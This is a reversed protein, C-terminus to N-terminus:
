SSTVKRAIALLSTGIPLQWRWRVAAAERKLISRLLPNVLPVVKLERGAKAAAKEQSIDAQGGHLRRGLWVLPFLLMMFQTVFEVEFGNRHLLTKLGSVAYRRRHCASVDFYSWLTMHAPVTLILAGGPKLIRHLGAVIEEDNPLHELVDCMAVIDFQGLPPPDLIDGQVVQCPAREAAFAVAEPYLDMGIVEGTRCTKVLEQLVIGTGCGVELVRYGPSLDRAVSTVATGIIHNRAAFWFHRSEVAAIQSFFQPDYTPRDDPLPVNM